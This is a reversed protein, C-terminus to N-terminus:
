YYSVVQLILNKENSPNLCENEDYPSLKEAMLTQTLAGKVAMVIRADEKGGLFASLDERTINKKTRLVRFREVVKEALEKPLTYEPMQFNLNTAELDDM